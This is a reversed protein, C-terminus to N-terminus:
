LLVDHTGILCVRTTTVYRHQCHRQFQRRGFPFDRKVVAPALLRGHVRDCLWLSLSSQLCHQGQDRGVPLLPRQRLVYLDNHTVLGPLIRKPDTARQLETVNVAVDDIRGANRDFAVLPAGLGVPEIDDLEDDVQARPQAALTVAHV